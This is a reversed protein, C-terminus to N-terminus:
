KADAEEPADEVGAGPDEVAGCAILEAADKANLEITEGETVDGDLTKITGRVKYSVLVKPNALRAAKAAAQAAAKAAAKEAAKTEKDTAM